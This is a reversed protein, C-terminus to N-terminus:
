KKVNKDNPQWYRDFERLRELALLVNIPSALFTGVIAILSGPEVARHLGYNNGHEYDLDVILQMGNLLEACRHVCMCVCVSLAFRVCVRARACVQVRACACTYTYIHIYIHLRLYIHIRM